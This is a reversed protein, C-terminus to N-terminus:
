WSKRQEWAFGNKLKKSRAKRLRLRKQANTIKLASIRTKEIQNVALVVGCSDLRALVIVASLFLFVAKRIERMM